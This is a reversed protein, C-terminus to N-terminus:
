LRANLDDIESATILGLHRSGIEASEDKPFFGCPTVGAAKAIECLQPYLMASARNFIVGSRKYASLRSAVDQITAIVRIGKRSPDSVLVLCDVAEMVRRNIQEIGAEGDIVVFDYNGSIMELVQKLYANVKCYCGAAEPRGIALFSLNGRETICDLLHFKAESLLAVADATEGKDISQAIRLRIDDLTMQPEIGLATSLGVAPDADVALIRKQPYQESLLRIFAASLSTKGVGGKGCFAFITTQM